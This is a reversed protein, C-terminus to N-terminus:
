DDHHRADFLAAVIMITTIENEPDPFSIVYSEDMATTEHIQAVESDDKLITYNSEFFDGNVTWGNPMMSCIRKAGKLHTKLRGVHTDNIIMEYDRADSVFSFPSRLAIMMKKVVGVEEKKSDYIILTHKSFHKRNVTYIHNGEASFIDFLIRKKKANLRAIRLTSHASELLLDSESQRKLTKNILAEVKPGPKYIVTDSSVEEISGGTMGVAVDEAKRAAYCAAKGSIAGAAKGLVKGTIKGHSEAVHAAVKKKVAEQALYGFYRM